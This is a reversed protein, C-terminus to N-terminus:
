GPCGGGGGGRSMKTYMSMIGGGGHIKCSPCLGGGGGGGSFIVVLIYDGRWIICSPCLGGPHGGGRIGRYYLM